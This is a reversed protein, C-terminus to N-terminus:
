PAQKQHVRGNRIKKTVKMIEALLQAEPVAGVVKAKGYNIVTDPVGMIHYQNSLDPFETAEVMEAQVMTSEM